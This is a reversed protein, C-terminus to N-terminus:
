PDMIAAGTTPWQLGQRRVVTMAVVAVTAVAMTAVVTTALAMRAVAMAAMAVPDEAVTALAVTAMAPALWQPGRDARGHSCRVALIVWQLRQPGNHRCDSHGTASTVGATAMATTAM